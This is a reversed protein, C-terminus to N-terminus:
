FQDILTRELFFAIESFGEGSNSHVTYKRRREPTLANRREKKHYIPGLMEDKDGKKGKRKKSKHGETSANGMKNTSVVMADKRNRSGGDRPHRQSSSSGRSLSRWFRVNKEPNFVADKQKM